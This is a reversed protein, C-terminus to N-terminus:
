TNNVKLDKTPIKGTKEPDFTSFAEHISNIQEDTLEGKSPNSRRRSAGSMKWSRIRQLCM